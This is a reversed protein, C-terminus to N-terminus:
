EGYSNTTKSSITIILELPNHEQFIATSENLNFRDPLQYSFEEIACDDTDDISIIFRGDKIEYSYSITKDNSENQFQIKIILDYNEEEGTDEFSVGAIAIKKYM